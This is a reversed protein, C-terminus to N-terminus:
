LPRLAFSESGYVNHLSLERAIIDSLWPKKEERAISEGGHDIEAYKLRRRMM